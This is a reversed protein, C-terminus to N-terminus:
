ICGTFIQHCASLGVGAAIQLEVAQRRSSVIYLLNFRRFAIQWISFNIWYFNLRILYIILKILNDIFVVQSM